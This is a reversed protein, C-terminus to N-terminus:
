TRSFPNRILFSFPLHDCYHVQDILKQERLFVMLSSCRQIDAVISGASLTAGSISDINKGLKLEGGAYGKFQALWKKNCIGAGQPSRYATIIVRQVALDESFVISYDFYDFRGMAHTSLIFGQLSEEMVLSHLVDGPHILTGYGQDNDSLPIEVAQIDEGYIHQVEKRVKRNLQDPESGFVVTIGVQVLLAIISLKRM